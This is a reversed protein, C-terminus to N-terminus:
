LKEIRGLDEAIDRMGLAILKEATPIGRRVDWGREDYYDDLLKNMTEMTVVKNGCDTLPVEKGEATKLSELWRPPIRDDKRDFGERVNVAKYLNWIREGAQKMDEQTVEIGTAASYNEWRQGISSLIGTRVFGWPASFFLTTKSIGRDGVPTTIPKWM